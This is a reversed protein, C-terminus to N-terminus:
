LINSFNLAKHRLQLYRNIRILGTSFFFQSLNEVPAPSEYGSLPSFLKREFM